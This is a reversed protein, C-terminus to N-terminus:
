VEPMDEHLWDMDEAPAEDVPTNATGFIDTQNSNDGTIVTPTISFERLVLDKNGFDVNGFAGAAKSEKLDKKIWKFKDARTSPISYQRLTHRNFCAQVVKGDGKTKVGLLVGVKNNTSDIISKLLSIDGKFISAWEDKDIRAYAESVDSVKDLNFPLNLLNM